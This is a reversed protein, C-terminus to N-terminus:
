LTPLKLAAELSMWQLTHCEMIWDGVLCTLSQPASYLYITVTYHNQKGVPAEDQGM